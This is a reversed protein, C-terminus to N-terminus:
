KHGPPPPKTFAKLVDVIVALGLLIAMATLFGGRKTQMETRSTM